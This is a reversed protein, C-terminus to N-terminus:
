THRRRMTVFVLAALWGCFAILSLSKGLYIAVNDFRFEIVHQGPPVPVSMFLSEAGMLRASRGDVTVAWGPYLSQSLVVAMPQDFNARLRWLHRHRKLVEVRLVPAESDPSTWVGDERVVSAPVAYALPRADTNEYLRGGASKHALRFSSHDLAATTTIWRISFRDCLFDFLERQGAVHADALQRLAGLSTTPPLPEQGGFYSLGYIAGVNEELREAVAKPDQFTRTLGLALVRRNDGGLIVKAAAPQRTLVEQPVTRAFSHWSVVLELVGVALTVNLAARRPRSEGLLLASSSSALGVVMLWTGPLSLFGALRGSAAAVAFTALCAAGVAAASVWGRRSRPDGQEFAQVCQGALLAVGLQLLWVFRGPVRFTNFPPVLTLLRYVPNTRGAMLFLGVVALAIGLRTAPTRRSGLAGALGLVLFATGFFGRTEWYLYTGDPFTGTYPTGFLDPQLLRLWDRPQMSGDTLFSFSGGPHPRPYRSAYEAVPLVQAAALAAGMSAALLLRLAATGLPVDADRATLALCGVAIAAFWVYQPQGQLLSLGIAGGLLTVSLHQPGPRLALAALWLIPGTWGMAVLINLHITHAAVAGGLTAVAATVAASRLSGGLTLAFGLMGRALLWLHVLYCLRFALVLPCLRLLLQNVPYFWGSQAAGVACYGAFLDPSWWLPEGDAIAHQMSAALPLFLHQADDLYYSRGFLLPAAALLVLGVATLEVAWWPVPRPAEHQQDSDV